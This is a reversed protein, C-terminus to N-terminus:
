EEAPEMLIREPTIRINKVYPPGKVVLIAFFQSGERIVQTATVEIMMPNFLATEEVPIMCRVEAAQSKLTGTMLVSDAPTVQVTFVKETFRSVNGIVKVDRTELEIQGPFPNILNLRYNFSKDIQKLELKRTSISPIQALTAQDGTIIVSDPIVLTTDHLYHNARFDLVLDSVVPVTRSSVEEVRYFLTDPKISLVVTSVPFQTSIRAMLSQAAIYLIGPRNSQRLFAQNLDIELGGAMTLENFLLQYGQAKIELFVTDKQLPVVRQNAVAGTLNIRYTITHVYHRNLKIMLWLLLSIGTCVLFVVISRRHLRLYILAKRVTFGPRRNQM